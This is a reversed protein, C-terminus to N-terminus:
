MQLREVHVRVIGGMNADSTAAAFSQVLQHVDTLRDGVIRLFCQHHEFVTTQWIKRIHRGGTEAYADIRCEMVTFEAGVEM